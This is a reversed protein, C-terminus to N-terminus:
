FPVGCGVTIAAPSAAAAPYLSDLVSDEIQKGGGKHLQFFLSKNGCVFIPLCATASWSIILICIV